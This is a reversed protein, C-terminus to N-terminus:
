QLLGPLRYLLRRAAPWGANMFLELCEVLTDRRQKDDFIQKHDALLVGILKVFLDTGLSEFQYGTSRGGKLLANATVNFAREADVPLLFEMLQLLYYITHPSANNGIIMLTEAIEDFFQRRGEEKLASETDAAEKHAESAFYLERCVADLLQALVRAQPKSQEDLEEVEYLAALGSDASKAIELALAQSRHRLGDHNEGRESRLGVVFAGRLAVLIKHLEPSHEAPTTIWNVIVEYASKQEHTVWLIALIDALAKRVRQQRDAADTFRNLLGLSLQMVREPPHHLVRSLVSQIVHELVGLNSETDLHASLRQWFGDNDLEWIRLLHLAAELRVAPHPDHLLTNVRPELNRYLDPRVRILNLAIRAADVRAAPSAWAQRHEFSEETDKYVRPGLSESARTLLAIFRETASKDDATPIDPRDILRDLALAIQGEAHIVLDPNQTNGDITSILRELSDLTAGLAVPRAETSERELELEEKVTDIAAMLTQNAPLERDLGQIWHYSEPAESFTHLSFLRENSVDETGKAGRAISQAYDTSLRELGITSFLRREFSARADEPLQFRSFDFTRVSDEFEQRAQESLLDYGAAIVDIADKRTDPLTLFAEQMALPLVLDLVNGGRERAVLFLRSWFIARSAREIIREVILAATADSCNRLYDLWKKVLAEGGQHYTEDPTHAWVHSWDECLRVTRSGVTLEINLQHDDLPHEREIFIEAAKILAETASEPHLALFEPVFETLTYYAIEYDQRTNSTMALIQSNSIRTERQDTIVYGFVKQYIQQAFAPDHKAIIGIKRCLEPVEDSAFRELRSPAFIRELLDRSAIPDTAYTSGVFGIASVVQRHPSDLTFAYSLLARAATGLLRQNEENTARALLIYLLFRVSVSVPAVNQSLENLLWAWPNLPMEPHDELRIALAGSLHMLAQVADNDTGVVRQALPRLDAPERPYEACIRATTSRIVPDGSQDALIHAAATWFQARTSDADWIERLVFALAPALLLGCAKAKPFKHSGDILAEPDLLVKAAAFDFLLHHRFQIWRRRPHSILVGRSELADLMAPDNSPALPFRARLIRNKVMETVIHTIYAQAPAGLEEVRRIWYLRLLEAQSAIYSFDGLVSGEKIMECLLRTNFPVAALDKLAPSAHELANKLAPTHDLLQQFEKSSWLPIQVHRVNQLGQVHLSAIPPTGKFLTQFQEGMQLDFTRISAIVRWRGNREMVQKILDRFVGEGKGGRAADLADIILWGPAAGDWADLTDVLGHDLGLENKLGELTEVSHRDVALVLVDHGNKHLERALSNLVGSKGAGPEGVILLSGELAASLISAECERKISVIHGDTAEVSEYRELATTTEASQKRLREIDKQFNPPSALKLGHTLLHQRLSSLDM